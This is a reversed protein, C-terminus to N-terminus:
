KGGKKKPKIPETKIPPEPADPQADTSGFGGERVVGNVPISSPRLVEIFVGQAIKEGDEIRASRRYNPNQACLVMIEQKYDMDVLGPSNSIIFEGKASKGSRPLIQLAIVKGEEPEGEVKLFLGTPIPTPKLHGMLHVCTKGGLDARIDFGASLETAYEIGAPNGDKDVISIKLAM